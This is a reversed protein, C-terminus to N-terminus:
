ADRLMDCEIQKRGDAYEHQRHQCGSVAVRGASPSGVQEPLAHTSRIPAVNCQATNTALFVACRNYDIIMPPPCLMQRHKTVYHLSSRPGHGGKLINLAGRDYYFAYSGKIAYLLTGVVGAKVTVIVCWFHMRFM